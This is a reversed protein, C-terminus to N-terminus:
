AQVAAPEAAAPEVPAAAEPAAEPAAPAPPAPREGTTLKIAVLKKESDVKEVQAWCGPGFFNDYLKIRPEEAWMRYPTDQSEFIMSLASEGDFVEKKLFELKPYERGPLVLGLAKVTTDLHCEDGYRHRTVDSVVKQMTETAKQEFLAETADTSQVGVPELEAYKLACGILTIPVGYIFGLGSLGQSGASLFFEAFSSATVVLGVALAFGALSFGRIEIPPEGQGGFGGPTMTRDSDDGPFAEFM